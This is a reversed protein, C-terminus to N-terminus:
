DLIRARYFTQDSEMTDNFFVSGSSNTLILFPQWFLNTAAKEILYRSGVEGFLKWTVIDNTHFLLEIRGVNFEPLGSRLQFSNMGTLGDGPSLPPSQAIMEFVESRGFKGGLAHAEEYSEGANAQWARVQLVATSGSAITPLVVTQPLLIGADFGTGFTRPTGVARLTAGSDGAYLQAVYNSGSLKTNGDIDFVPVSNTFFGQIFRNAFRVAGGGNTSTEM